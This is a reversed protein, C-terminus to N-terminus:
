ANVYSRPTGRATRVDARPTANLDDAREPPLDSCVAMALALFICSRIDWAIDVFAFVLYMVIYAVCTYVMAVRTRDTSTLVNSIGYQISRTVFYLMAMFGLVGTKMWIWLVGNHPIYAAFPFTSIDPLPFPRLFPQGFGIGLLENSRITFWINLGEIDRYLDSSRDSASLSDPAIYSKVAQAGFGIGGQVNWFALVYGLTIVASLPVLWAALKPRKWFLLVALLAVGVGLAVAASRRQALVYAITVPLLGITMLSTRTPAKAGFVLLAILLVIYANNHIAASHEGLDELESRIEDSVNLYFVLAFISQVVIAGMSSLFLRRYARETTILNTILLYLIPLYLLPRAEYAAVVINARRLYSLMLALVVIAGFVSIPVLLPAVRMRWDPNGIRTLLWVVLTWVLVVELPNIILQDAVFMLSERSSMNRIFPYWPSSGGDAALGLVVAAYVGVVPRFAIAICLLALLLVMLALPKPATMAALGGFMLTALAVLAFMSRWSRNNATSMESASTITSTVASNM